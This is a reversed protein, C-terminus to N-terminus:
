AKLESRHKRFFYISFPVFIFLSLFAILAGFLPLLFMLLLEIPAFSDNDFGPASSLMEELGLAGLSILLIILPIALCLIGKIKHNPQLYHIGLPMLAVVLIFGLLGPISLLTWQGVVGLIGWLPLYRVGSARSYFLLLYILFLFVEFILPTFILLWGLRRSHAM